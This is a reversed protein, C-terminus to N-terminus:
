RGNIDFNLGVEVRPQGESKSNEKELPEDKSEKEYGTTRSESGLSDGAMDFDFFQTSGWLELNNADYNDEYPQEAGSVIPNIANLNAVYSSLNLNRRSHYTM